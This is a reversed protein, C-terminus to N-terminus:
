WILNIISIRSPHTKGIWFRPKLVLDFVTKEKYDEKIKEKVWLGVLLSSSEYYRVQIELVLIM